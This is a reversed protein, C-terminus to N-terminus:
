EYSPRTPSPRRFGAPATGLAACLKDVFMGVSRCYGYHRRRRMVAETAANGWILGMHGPSISHTFTTTTISKLHTATLLKVRLSCYLWSCIAQLQM